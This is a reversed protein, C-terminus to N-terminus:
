RRAQTGRCIGVAGNAWHAQEGSAAWVWVVHELESWGARGSRGRPEVPISVSAATAPNLGRLSRPSGVETGQLCPALPTPHPPQCPPHSHTPSLSAKCYLLLLFFLWAQWEYATWLCPCNNLWCSRWSPQKELTTKILICVLLPNGSPVVNM